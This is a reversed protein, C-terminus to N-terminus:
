SDKPIDLNLKIQKGESKIGWPGIQAVSGKEKLLCWVILHAFEMEPM